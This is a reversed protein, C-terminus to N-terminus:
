DAVVQPNRKMLLDVKTVEESPGEHGEHDVGRGSITEAM